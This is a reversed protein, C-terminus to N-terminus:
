RDGRETETRRRHEARLWGALKAVIQERAGQRAPANETKPREEVTASMAGEQHHEARLRVVHVFSEM